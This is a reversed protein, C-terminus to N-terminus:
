YGEIDKRIYALHARIPHRKISHNQGGEFLM